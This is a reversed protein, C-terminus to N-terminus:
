EKEQIVPKRQSYILTANIQKFNHIKKACNIKKISFFM